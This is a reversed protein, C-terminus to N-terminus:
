PSALLGMEEIRIAMAQRSVKFYQHLPVFHSRNYTQTEALHESLARLSPLKERVSQLDKSGLAFATEENLSLCTTLFRKKFEVRLLKEPMLFYSAFKDAQRELKDRTGSAGDMPRDRHLGRGPHMLLHGLEHAATFQRVVPPLRQSIRVSRSEVDIVGAVEVTRGNLRMEGLSDAPSYAFGFCEIATAPDLVLIPDILGQDDNWQSHRRWLLRQLETTFGLIQADSPNDLHQVRHLLESFERDFSSQTRRPTPALASFCDRDDLHAWPNRLKKRSESIQLDTADNM